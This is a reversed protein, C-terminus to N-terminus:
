LDPYDMYWGGPAPEPPYYRTWPVAKRSCTRALAGLREVSITSLFNQRAAPELDVAEKWIARGAIVGSAGSECAVDVQRLFAEFDVGSSLLAWPVQSAQTL